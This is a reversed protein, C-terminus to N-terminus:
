QVDFASRGESLGRGGEGAVNIALAYRGPDLGWVRMALLLKRAGAVERSSAKILALEVRGHAKGDVGLARASYQLSAADGPLNYVILCVRSEQGNKTGAFAAPVFSEGGIAFPYEAVEETPSRPRAKVMIWEKGQDVFLPPMTLPGGVEAVHLPTITVGFRGSENDRVLTRLTYDGPALQLEGYYKLGGRALAGEAQALDITVPQVLYDRTQGERDIAYVFLDVTMKPYKHSVLLRDGPVEVVVPVRSRGGEPPFPTALVWAPVDTKPLAASVASAMALRREMPTLANQAKPEYYGTRHSVRWSKNRVKVKLAHFKGNEPIRVPQFALLYILGTRALLEDFAPALNNANKLFEGGTQDSFYYLSDQGNVPAEGATMAM